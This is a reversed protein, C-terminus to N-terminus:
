GPRDGSLGVRGRVSECVCVSKQVYVTACKRKHMHGPMATDGIMVILSAWRGRAHTGSMVLFPLRDVMANDLQVVKPDTGSTLEPLRAEFLDFRLHLTTAQAAHLVQRVFGRCGCKVKATSLEFVRNMTSV